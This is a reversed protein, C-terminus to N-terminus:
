KGGRNKVIFFRARGSSLIDVVEFKKEFMELYEDFTAGFPDRKTANIDNPGWEIICIGRPSLTNMWVRMTKRADFAHDLANSYVFDAKGVWTPNPKNFDWVITHPNNAASRSIETGIVNANLYKRFWVQEQGTRCGHCIGFAPFRMAKLIYKSLMEINDETAEVRNQKRLHEKIQARLYKDYNKYQFQNM